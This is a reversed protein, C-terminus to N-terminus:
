GGYQTVMGAAMLVAMALQFRATAALITNFAPGPAQRTFNHLCSLALPLALLGGWSAKPLTLLLPFPALILAGYLIRSAAPGIVIALTRRGAQQDPKSDRYNNAMLVAAAPLGIILGLLLSHHDPVSGQLWACGLVAGIGFFLIVFVEGLPSHSIPYPGGSYAWGAALSFIGLMLIPWGGTISLYLGVLAALTFCLFAASRVQRPSAWGSATARAPGQRQPTDNLADAEDNHLNTGAQILMAGALAALMPAPQFTHGQWLALATGAAVPSISITLTKPRIALWWLRIGTPPSLEPPPM